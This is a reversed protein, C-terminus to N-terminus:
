FEGVSLSVVGFYYYVKLEVVYVCEIGEFVMCEIVYYVMMCEVVDYYRLFLM